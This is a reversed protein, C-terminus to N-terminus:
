SVRCGAPAPARTAIRYTVAGSGRVLSVVYPAGFRWGGDFGGFVDNAGAAYGDRFAARALPRSSGRLSLSEQLARGEILGDDLGREYSAAERTAVDTSGGGGRASARGGVFLGVAACVVVAGILVRVM